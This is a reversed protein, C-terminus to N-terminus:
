QTKFFGKMQILQYFNTQAIDNCADSFVEKELLRQCAHLVIAKEM